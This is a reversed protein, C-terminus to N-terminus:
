LTTRWKDLLKISYTISQILEELPPGHYPLSQNQQFAITAEGIANFEKIKKYTKQIEIRLNADILLYTVNTKVLDYTDTNFPYDGCIKNNKNNVHEELLRKINSLEKCLNEAISQKQKVVPDDNNILNTIAALVKTALDDPTNFVDYTEKVKNLFKLQKEEFKETEAKRYDEMVFILKKLKHKEAEDYELHTFSKKTKPVNTGYNYGFIGVYIKSKSIHSLCENIPTNNTACFYEMGDPYMGSKRLAALVAERFKELDKFTSSIFIPNDKAWQSFM